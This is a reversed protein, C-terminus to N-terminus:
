KRGEALAQIRARKEDMMYPRRWRGYRREALAGADYAALMADRVAAQEDQVWGAAMEDNEQEAYRLLATNVDMLTKVSRLMRGDGTALATKILYESATRYDDFTEIDLLATM